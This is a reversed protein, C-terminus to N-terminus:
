SFVGIINLSTPLNPYAALEDGQRMKICACAIFGARCESPQLFHITVLRDFHLQDRNQM